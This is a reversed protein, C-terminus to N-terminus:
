SLLKKIDEESLGTAKVIKDIDLGLSLLNRAVEIKGKEIGKEIGRLEREELITMIKEGKGELQDIKKMLKDETIKKDTKSMYMMLIGMIDSVTEEEEKQFADETALIFIELLKDEDEQTVYKFVKLILRVIPRYKDLEEDPSRYIIGNIQTGIWIKVVM